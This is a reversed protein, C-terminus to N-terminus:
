EGSLLGRTRLKTREELAEAVVADGELAGTAVWGPTPPVGAATLAGASDEARGEPMACDRRTATGLSSSRCRSLRKLQPTVGSRTVSAMAAPPAICHNSACSSGLAM